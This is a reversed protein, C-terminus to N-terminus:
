RNIGEDIGLVTQEGYDPATVPSLALISLISVISEKAAEGYKQLLALLADSTTM